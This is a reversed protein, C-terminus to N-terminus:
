VWRLKPQVSNFFNRPNSLGNYMGARVRGSPQSRLHAAKRPAERIQLHSQVTVRNKSKSMSLRSFPHDGIVIDNSAVDAKIIAKRPAPAAEDGVACGWYQPISLFKDSWGDLAAMRGALLRGPTTPLEGNYYAEPTCNRPVHHTLEVEVMLINRYEWAADIGYNSALSADIYFSGRGNM